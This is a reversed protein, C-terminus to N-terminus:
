RFLKKWFPLKEAMQNDDSKETDEVVLIMGEGDKSLGFNERFIEEKGEDTELKEIDFILKAKREQLEIVKEEAIRRNHITEKMKGFLGLINWLFFLIIIILFVLFIKSYFIHKLGKKEQFNRM